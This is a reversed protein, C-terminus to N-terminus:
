DLMICIRLPQTLQITDSHFQMQIVFALDVSLKEVTHVLTLQTRQFSPACGLNSKHLTTSFLYQLNANQEVHCYM